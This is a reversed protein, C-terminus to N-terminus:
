VEIYKLSFEYSPVNSSGSLTWANIIASCGPAITVPAAMATIRASDTARAATLGATGPTPGDAGFDIVWTDHVVSVGINLNIIDILRRSAGAAPVTAAGAAFSTVTAGTTSNAFAPNVNVPTRAAANTTIAVIASETYVEFRAALTTAPATATQFLTLSDLQITKGNPSNGNSISFLGNATASFSTQNAYAIATGPTPNTVNFYGGAAAIMQRSTLLGIQGNLVVATSAM